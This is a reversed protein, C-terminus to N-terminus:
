QLDILDHECDSRVRVRDNALGRFKAEVLPAIDLRVFAKRGRHRAHERAAIDDGPGRCHDLRHTGAALGRAAHLLIESEAIVAPVSGGFSPGPGAHEKTDIESLAIERADADRLPQGSFSHTIKLANAVM